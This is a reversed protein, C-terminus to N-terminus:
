TDAIEVLTAAGSRKPLSKVEVTPTQPFGFSPLSPAFETFETKIFMAQIQLPVAAKLAAIEVDKSAM